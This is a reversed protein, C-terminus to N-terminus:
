RPRGSMLPEGREVAQFRSLADSVIRLWAGTESTRNCSYKWLTRSGNSKGESFNGKNGRTVKRSLEDSFHKSVITEAIGALNIEHVLEVTLFM